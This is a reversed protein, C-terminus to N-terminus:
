RGAPTLSGASSQGVWQSQRELVKARFQEIQKPDEPLMWSWRADAPGLESQPVTVRWWVLAVVVIAAVIVCVATKRGVVRKDM